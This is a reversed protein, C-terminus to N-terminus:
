WCNLLQQHPSFMGPISRSSEGIAVLSILPGVCFCENSNIPHQPACRDGLGVLQLQPADVATMEAAVHSLLQKIKFHMEPGVRAFTGKLAM